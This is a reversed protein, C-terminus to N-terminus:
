QCFKHSFQSFMIPFLFIDSLFHRLLLPFLYCNGFTKKEIQQKLIKVTSGQGLVADFTSPRYIRALSLSM